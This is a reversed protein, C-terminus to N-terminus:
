KSVKVFAHRIVKDKYKYGKQLVVLVYDPEVGDVHETMIADMLNPDFLKDQCDIEEVGIGKLINLMNTYIMKYGELYKEDISTDMEIAREFNDVIPLLSKILEIGDYKAINMIEENHRKGINQIEASLRLVKDNLLKNEEELKSIKDNLKNDKKKDKKKNEEKCHCGDGCTCDDGNMCNCEDSCCCEDFCKDDKGCNCKSECTCNDDCQCEKEKDKKM